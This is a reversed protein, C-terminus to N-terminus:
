SEELETDGGRHLTSVVGDADITVAMDAQGIFLGHEVVGPEILRRDGSPHVEIITYATNTPLVQVHGTAVGNEALVAITRRGPVDDGVAGFYAATRGLRSLQVAVNVANGGVLSYGMPPQLRDICNDGLTAILADADGRAAVPSM